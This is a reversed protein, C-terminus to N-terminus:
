PADAQRVASTAARVADLRDDVHQLRSATAVQTCSSWDDATAVLRAVSQEYRDIHEAVPALLVRRARGVTQGARVLEAELNVAEQELARALTAFDAAVWGDTDHRLGTARAISSASRLRRHQCAASSPSWLWRMPAPSRAEPMVRLMRRVSRVSLAVTMAALFVVALFGGVLAMLLSM